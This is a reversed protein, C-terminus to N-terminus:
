ETVNVQKRLSTQYSNKDSSLDNFYSSTPQTLSSSSDISGTEYSRHMALVFYLLM